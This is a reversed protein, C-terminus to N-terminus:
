NQNRLRTKVGFDDRWCFRFNFILGSSSHQNFERWCRESGIAGSSLGVLVKGCSEMRCPDLDLRDQPDSERDRRGGVM